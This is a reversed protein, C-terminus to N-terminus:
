KHINTCIMVGYMSMFFSGDTAYGRGFYLHFKDYHRQQDKYCQSMKINVKVTVVNLRHKKSLIVIKYQFNLIIHM